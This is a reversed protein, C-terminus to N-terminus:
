LGHSLEPRPLGQVAPREGAVRLSRLRGFGSDFPRLGMLVERCYRKGDLRRAGAPHSGRDSPCSHATTGQSAHEDGLPGFLGARCATHALTLTFAAAHCDSGANRRRDGYTAASCNHGGPDDRGRRAPGAHGPRSNRWAAAHIHAGCGRRHGAPHYGGAVIASKLFGKLVALPVVWLLTRRSAKPRAVIPQALPVVTAATAALNEDPRLVRIVAVSINDDGGNENALNILRQVAEHATAYKTALTAIQADSVKTSLGDSCLVLVDGPQLDVVARDVQVDPATALARTIVNRQPHVEAQEPTLVGARVQEAVWSHDQTLQEPKGGRIRYLRSDGVHALYGRDGLIVLCTFTTGMGHQAPNAQAQAYLEGNARRVVKDLSRLVDPDADDYYAQYIRQVAGASAVEGANHGGMGDAVMFLYGRPASPALEPPTIRITDENYSRARGQDSGAAVELRLAKPQPEGEGREPPHAPSGAPPVPATM